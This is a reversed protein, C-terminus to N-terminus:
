DKNTALVVEAEAELSLKAELVLEAEWALKTEPTSEAEAMPAVLVVEGEIEIETAKTLMSFNSLAMMSNNKM